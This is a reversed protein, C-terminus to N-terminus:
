ADDRLMGELEKLAAAVAASMPFTRVHRSVTQRSLGMRAAIEGIGLGEDHLKRMADRRVQMKPPPKRDVRWHDPNVCLRDGCENRLVGAPVEGRKFVWMVRQVTQMGQVQCHAYGIRSVPGTWILCSGRDVVRGKLRWRAVVRHLGAMDTVDGAAMLIDGRFVQTEFTFSFFNPLDSICLPARSPPTHSVRPGIKGGGGGAGVGM